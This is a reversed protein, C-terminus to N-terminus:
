VKMTYRCEPYNSCGMFAGYKGKKQTLQGGCKPCVKNMVKEKDVSINGKINKVHQVREVLSVDMKGYSISEALKVIEEESFRKNQYQLVVKKIDAFYIVPQKSKVKLTASGAFAVIPIFAEMPLNLLQMLSVVHGYNQRLPNLFKSKNGYINQTWQEAYEGGYIWGKYNKTEIVFIGYVSVLIHDVQTTGKDTQLMVDNLLIYQEKPLGSLLVSIVKEGVIGKIIPKVVYKLFGLLLGLLFAFLIYKM